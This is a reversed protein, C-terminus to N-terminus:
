TRAEAHIGAAKEAGEAEAAPRVESTPTNWGEALRLYLFVPEGLRAIVIGKHTLSFRPKDPAGFSPGTEVLGAMEFVRLNGSFDPTPALRSPAQGRSVRPKM